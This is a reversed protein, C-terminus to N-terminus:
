HGKGSYRSLFFARMCACLGVLWGVSGGVLLRYYMPESTNITTTIMHVFSVSYLLLRRYEGSSMGPSQQM